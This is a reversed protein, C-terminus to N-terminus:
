KWSCHAQKGVCTTVVYVKTVGCM